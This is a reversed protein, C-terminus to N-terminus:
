LQTVARKAAERVNADAEESASLKELLPRADSDKAAALFDIMALQVLPSPERPLSIEIATRVVDQSANPYLAQVASMRVNASPDLALTGILNDITQKDPKRLSAMALVGELRQNTSTAQQRQLSYNVLQGVSDMQSKLAAIDQQTAPASVPNSPAAGKRGAVFGLAVLSCAGLLQLFIFRRSLRRGPAHGRGRAPELGAGAAIAKEAEIAALVGRRLNGSPGVPAPADLVRAMQRMAALEAQCGACQDVHAKLETAAAPDLRGDMWEMMRERSRECNM